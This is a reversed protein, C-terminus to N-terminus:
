CNYVIVEKVLRGGDNDDFSNTSIFLPTLMYSSHLPSPVKCGRQSDIEQLFTTVTVYSEDYASGFKILNSHDCDIPAVRHRQSDDPRGHTASHTDVLVAPSGSMSWTGDEKKINANQPQTIIALRASVNQHATPSEQTEYFNLIECRLEGIAASFEKAQIRLVPSNHDLTHLFGRNAQDGVMPILSRIDMGQNPVGFFIVGRIAAFTLNDADIPSSRMLSIAEKMVIGGLSHGLLILPKRADQRVQRVATQFKKGIDLLNQFSRSDQLKTDYGYIIIRCGPFDQPLSDRLWM